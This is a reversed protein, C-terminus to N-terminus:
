SFVDICFSAGLHEACCKNYCFNLYNLDGNVLSSILLSSQKPVCPMTSAKHHLLFLGPFSSLSLHCVYFIM